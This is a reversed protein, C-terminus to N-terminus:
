KIKLRIYIHMHIKSASVTMTKLEFFLPAIRSVRTNANTDKFLIHMKNLLRSVQFIYEGDFNVDNAVFGM